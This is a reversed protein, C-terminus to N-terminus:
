VIISFVVVDTGEDHERINCNSFTIITQRITTLFHRRNIIGRYIFDFAILKNEGLGLCKNRRVVCLNVVSENDIDEFVIRIADGPKLSTKQDDEYLLTTFM